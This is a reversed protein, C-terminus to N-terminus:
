LFYAMVQKETYCTYFSGSVERDKKPYIKLKYGIVVLCLFKLQGSKGTSDAEM